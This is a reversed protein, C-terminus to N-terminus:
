RRWRGSAIGALAILAASAPTPVSVPTNALSEYGWGTPQYEFGGGSGQAVKAITIYGFHTQGSLNLKVGLVGSEGLFFWSPAFGRAGISTYNQWDAGANIPTGSEFDKAGLYDQGNSGNQCHFLDSGQAIAASANAIIDTSTISTSTTLSFEEIRVARATSLGPQTNDLTIDLYNGEVLGTVHRNWRFNLGANDFQILAASAPSALAMTMLIPCIRRM